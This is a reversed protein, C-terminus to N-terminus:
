LLGYREIRRYLSNRHIGLERASQAINGENKNLVKVITQKELEVLNNTDHVDNFSAKKHFFLNKFDLNNGSSMILAREAFNQLERVNGPWNYGKLKKYDSEQIIPIEKGYKQSFKNLFYDFLVPIDDIRERLAPINIEFTNIRYLLDERFENSQIMDKLSKNTASVLRVDIPIEKGEGIKNIYRNQLVSLLKSQLSFSLNGIEDLFITGKNALEFRGIKDEKADTFAGKKHGFMESEFLSEPISGLDVRIFPNRNKNSKKHIERAVLDKGTGNEGLLLVNTDTIAIKAILEKLRQMIPSNGILEEHPKNIDSYLIKQEQKLRFIEKNRNRYEFAANVTSLLKANEWPKQIFDFAGKKMSDVALDIDGYATMLIVVVTPDTKKIYSLWYLGEKGDVYGKSFNMDLLIIDYVQKSIISKLSEPENLIDVIEFYENLFLEASELINPNDDIILISAKNKM